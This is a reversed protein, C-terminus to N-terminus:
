VLNNFVTGEFSSKRDSRRCTMENGALKNSEDNAQDRLMFAAVNETTCKLIKLNFTNFHLELKLLVRSVLFSALM